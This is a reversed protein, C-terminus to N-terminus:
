EDPWVVDKCPSDSGECELAPPDDATAQRPEGTAHLADDYDLFYSRLCNQGYSQCQVSLAFHSSREVKPALYYLVYNKIKLNKGDAAISPVEFGYDKGVAEANLTQPAAILANEDMYHGINKKLDEIESFREESNASRVYPGAFGWNPDSFVIGRSDVMFAYRGRIAEKPEALLQFDAVRKSAPDTVILYSVTYQDMVNAAFKTECSWNPPPPDLSPPYGDEPHVSRNLILCGALGSIQHQAVGASEFMTFAAQAKRVENQRGQRYEASKLYQNGATVCIATAALTLLFTEWSVKGIRFASVVIWVSCGLFALASIAEELFYPEPGFSLFLSLFAAIALFPGSAFLGAAVGAGAARSQESRISLLLWSVIFPVVLLAVRLVSIWLPNVFGSGSGPHNERWQKDGLSAFWSFACAAVFALGLAVRIGHIRVLINGESDWSNSNLRTAM